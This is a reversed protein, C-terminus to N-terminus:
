IPRLITQAQPTLSSLSLLFPKKRNNNCLFGQTPVCIADTRTPGRASITRMHKYLSLLSPGSSLPIFRHLSSFSFRLHFREQGAAGWSETDTGKLSSHQKWCPGSLTTSSSNPLVFGNWLRPEKTPGEPDVAQVWVNAHTFWYASRVPEIWPHKLFVVSYFVIFCKQLIFLFSPCLHHIVDM